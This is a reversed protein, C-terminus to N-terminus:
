KSGSTFQPPAIFIDLTEAVEKILTLAPAPLELVRRSYQMRSAQIVVKALMEDGPSDMLVTRGSFPAQSQVAAIRVYFNYAPLRSLTGPEVHPSLLPQLLQEDQQSSTRFSIITGVNAFVIDIMRRDSQQSTSQEAMTLFLGYKRAESLLQVFSPTAFNQFEDVYVYFPRRDAKPRNARRLTALQLKALVMIGFLESTDEGLQGKSVNCILIKGQQMLDDFNVSSEPQELIRRASASFLFRGIKATIGAAMSVQQYSGARNFENWFLRLDANGLTKIVRKRFEADNLLDYVTFLTPNEQTLATQM